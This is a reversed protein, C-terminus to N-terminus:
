KIKDLAVKITRLAGIVKFGKEAAQECENFYKLHDKWALRIHIPAKKEKLFADIEFIDDTESM